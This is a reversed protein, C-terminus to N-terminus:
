VDDGRKDAENFFRTRSWGYEKFFQAQTGVPNQLWEAYLLKVTEYSPIKKKPLTM